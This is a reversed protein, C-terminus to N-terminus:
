KNPNKNARHEDVMESLEWGFDILQGLLWVVSTVFISIIASLGIALPIGDWKIPRTCEVVSNYAEPCVPEGRLGGTVFYVFLPLWILGALVFLSWGLIKWRSIRRKKSM